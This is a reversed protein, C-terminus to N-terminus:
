QDFTDHYEDQQMKFIDERINNLKSMLDRYQESLPGIQEGLISGGSKLLETMKNYIINAENTYLRMEEQKKDIHEEM